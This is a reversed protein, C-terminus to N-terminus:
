DDDKSLLMILDRTQQGDKITFTIEGFKEFGYNKYLDIAGPNNEWVRLYIKPAKTMDPEALTTEILQRGIGLGQVETDVYLRTLEKDGVEPNIGPLKVDGYQSYGVIKGNHKVVLVRSTSRTKEFYGVSREEDLTKALENKDHYEGYADIFTRAALEALEDIDGDKLDEIQIELRPKKVETM